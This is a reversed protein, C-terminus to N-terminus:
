RWRPTSALLPAELGAGLAAGFRHVSEHHSSDQELDDAPHTGWLDPTMHVHVVRLALHPRVRLSPPTAVRLGLGIGLGVSEERIDHHSEASFYTASGFGELMAWRALPLTVMLRTD